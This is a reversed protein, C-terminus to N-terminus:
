VDERGESPPEAATSVEGQRVNPAQQGWVGVVYRADELAGAFQHQMYRTQEMQSRLGEWQINAENSKQELEAIRSRMKVMFDAAGADVGYQFACKLLDSRQPITLTLGAGEAVGLWYECSPRQVGYESGAAMDIGFMGLDTGDVEQLRCIAWATMWAVSSTFYRWGALLGRFADNLERHPFPQVTPFTVGDKAAAAIAEPFMWVPFPVKQLWEVHEVDERIGDRADPASEAWAHLNFWGTAKLATEDGIQKHLNNCPVVDWEPDGWPADWLSSTFGVLALKKRPSVPEDTVVTLEPAGPM